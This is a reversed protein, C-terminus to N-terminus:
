MSASDAKTNGGNAGGGAGTNGQAGPEPANGPAINGNGNGTPDSVPPPGGGGQPPQQGQGQPNMIQQMEKMLQAQVQMARQDNVVMDEDLDLSTALERLIYDVRVLPATVPNGLGTQMFQLLRQSRVENRMLSETGKAVVALDGEIDPDYDFQMNFAFLNRGLPALFYDDINRVVAKISQAAAGMLMSMGAATRGAGPAGTSGHSISPMNTAEDSIQRAKDFLQLLENSVNPFKTGFIAQGPAGAQRRFIKGPYVKMDQGPVLNTEDLEIIINGSLAANDVAMRMFGNMLEQTDDMNEAIGIGFFSYPNVEYPTAYYPIINPTYPNIVLRLIQDNCIWINVQFEDVEKDLKSEPVVLGNEEAIDRSITGWYELVEYREIINASTNDELITEWDEPQYNYGRRIAEDISDKRFMPRKRLQRLDHQSMKHREIVGECESMNRADPDPYFNWVSVATIKPVTKIIPTYDGQTTAPAQGSTQDEKPASKSWRPYEKDIAFPGKIIGTGFLSMEFAKYRLHKSAESEELQDYIKKEMKKAAIKVPEWAVTTPTPVNGTQLKDKIPELQKGLEGYLEPRAVTPTPGAQGQQQAAPGLDAYVKDPTDGIPEPTPEIGIPFKNGAFLVDGIQAVAALVKTKTIKIFVQSQEEDTFVVEPGYQGRFNRYARLWRNEDLRRKDKSRNFRNKVWAVVPNLEMNENVADKGEVLSLVTANDPAEMNPLQADMVSM